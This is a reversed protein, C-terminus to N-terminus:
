FNGGDILAGSVISQLEVWDTNAIGNFLIYHKNTSTVYVLMGIQRRSVPLADREALDAVTRLGGLGYQPDTVPYTDQTSSPAIIGSVPVTGPIPM